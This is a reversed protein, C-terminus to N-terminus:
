SWPISAPPAGLGTRMWVDIVTAITLAAVQAQDTPAVPLIFPIAPPVAPGTGIPMGGAVTVGFAAFAATFVQVAAGPVSMGSLAGKLAQVAAVVTTSPPVVPLAYLQMADSWAQACEVTTQPPDSFLVQLKIQLTSVILPM